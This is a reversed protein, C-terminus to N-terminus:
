DVWGDNQTLAPNLQRETAPIPWTTYYDGNITWSSVTNGWCEKLGSGEFLKSEYWTGWRLEDFYLTGECALEWRKERQIRKRMDAQGAVQTYSNSNLLAIGARKRVMNVYTAAEATKNQENLAEALSLLVDAYRILPVDLPSYGRDLNEMGEAVFKRVLYHFVKKTDSRLDFPAEIDNEIFPWRLTYLIEQGAATYPSGLYESYPTIYTQMLRPDRSEYVKKIRAENGQDLYKSFDAGDDQAKTKLSKYNASGFNGKGSTLGDRLFYVARAKPTMKSYGPIFDDWNFPKGEITEYTDIFDTDGYFDNWGGPYSVRSGYKFTMQHGYGDQEYCQISFIMEECQENAEKFLEKYGGQFLGYGLKTVEKLDSEALAYEKMWLYTKGRLAYAAGKTVRGYNPDGAMYRDPLNPENIVDTLDDIIAQWVEEETNRPKNFESVPTTTLYLPVGRYLCNLRYYFYARLFKAEAMYQACLEPAMNPVTWVNDIVDNARSIGEYHQKWARSFETNSPTANGNLLHLTSSWNNRASVSPDLAAFLYTELGLYNGGTVSNEVEGSSQLFTNYVGNVALTALNTSTWINTSGIANYPSTNLLDPQCASAGIILSSVFALYKIAKM